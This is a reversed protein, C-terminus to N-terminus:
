PLTLVAVSVSFVGLLSADHLRLNNVAKFLCNRVNSAMGPGCAFDLMRVERGDGEKAWEVGYWDLRKRYEETFVKVIRQLWDEEDYSSAKSDWFQKNKDAMAQPTSSMTFHKYTYAVLLPVVILLLTSQYKKPM